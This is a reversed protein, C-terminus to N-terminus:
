GVMILAEKEGNRTVGRFDQMARVILIRGPVETAMHVSAVGDRCRLSVHDLGVGAPHRIRACLKSVRGRHPTCTPVAGEGDDFVRLELNKAAHQVVLHLDGRAGCYGAIDVGDERVGFDTNDFEEHYTRGPSQETKTAIERLVEHCM